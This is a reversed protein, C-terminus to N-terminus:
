DRASSVPGSVPPNGVVVAAAIDRGEILLGGTLKTIFNFIVAVAFGGIWGFILGLVPYALLLLTMLFAEGGGMNGAGLALALLVFPVALIMFVAMVLAQVLALINATRLPDLRLIELKM